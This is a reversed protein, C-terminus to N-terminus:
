IDILSVCQLTCHLLVDVLHLTPYTHLFDPDVSPADAREGQVVKRRPVQRMPSQHEVQGMGFLRVENDVAALSIAGAVVVFRERGNGRRTPRLMM